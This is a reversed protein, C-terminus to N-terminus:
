CGARLFRAGSHCKPIHKENQRPAGAFQWIRSLGLCAMLVTPIKITLGFGNGQPGLIRSYHLFVHSLRRKTALRM